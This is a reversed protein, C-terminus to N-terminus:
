LSTKPKKRPLEVRIQTGKNIESAIRLSGRHLEVIQKCISLGLGTGKTKTTVFPDFIRGMNEKEIGCGDDVVSVGISDTSAEDITIEIKGNDPIADIANNLINNFLEKIQVPDAEIVSSTKNKHIVSSKKM